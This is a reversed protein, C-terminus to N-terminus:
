ADSQLTGRKETRASKLICRLDLNQGDELRWSRGAAKM